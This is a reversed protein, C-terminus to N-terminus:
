YTKVFTKGPLQKVANKLELTLLFSMLDPVGFGTQLSLADIGVPEDSLSEMVKLENPSLDERKSTVEEAPAPRLSFTAKLESLIEEPETVMRAGQKILDNTGASTESSLKGPISFIERGQDLAFRATILAGSKQSAEVVLIGRSLGSIIRNRVPFNQALPETNLSFQSLVAGKQAIEEFLGSNEPPYINNLGSGLVAVTRGSADLAARHSATDIGRAMGSVITLGFRALAESFKKACSLGYYSAGRSGVIGIANEDAEIFAGKVYLVIPPDPIEKLLKPYDADFLTIIRINKKQAEEIEKQAGPREAAKLIRQVMLPTLIGTQSLSNRNAKFIDQVCAFAELLKKARISGIGDVMNLLVLAELRTM